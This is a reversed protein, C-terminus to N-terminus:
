FTLPNPAKPGLFDKDSQSWSSTPDAIELNVPEAQIAKHPTGAARLSWDDSLPFDFGFGSGSAPKWCDGTEIRSGDFQGSGDAYGPVESTKTWSFIWEFPTRAGYELDSNQGDLRESFFVNILPIYYVCRKKRYARQGKEKSSLGMSLGVFWAILIKVNANRHM